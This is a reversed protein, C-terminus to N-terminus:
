PLGSVEFLDLLEVWPSLLMFVGWLSSAARARVHRAIVPQSCGLGAAGAELAVGGFSLIVVEM